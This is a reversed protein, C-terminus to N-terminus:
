PEPNRRWADFFPSCISPLVRPPPSSTPLTLFPAPTLVIGGAGGVCGGGVVDMALAVADGASARAEGGVWGAVWGGVSRKARVLDDLNDSILLALVIEVGRYESSV